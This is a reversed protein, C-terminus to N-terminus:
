HARNLLICKTKGLKASAVLEDIETENFISNCLIVASCNGTRLAVKIAEVDVNVKNSHIRLVNSNLADQQSLQKLSGSEPNVMLIWKSKNTHKQCIRQYTNALKENQNVEQVDLWPNLHIVNNLHSNHDYSLAKATNDM